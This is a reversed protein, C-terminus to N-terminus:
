IKSPDDSLAFSIPNRKALGAMVTPTDLVDFMSNSLKIDPININLQFIFFFQRKIDNFHSKNQPKSTVKTNKPTSPSNNWISNFWYPM